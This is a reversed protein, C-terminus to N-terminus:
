GRLAAMDREKTITGNVRMVIAMTISSSVMVKSKIKMGVEKTGIGVRIHTSAM